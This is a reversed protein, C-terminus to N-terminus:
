AQYTAPPPVDEPLREGRRRWLEAITFVVLIFVVAGAAIGVSQGTTLRGGNHSEQVEDSSGEKQSSSPSDRYENPGNLVYRNAEKPDDAFLCHFDKPVHSDDKARSALDAREQGSLDELDLSVALYIVNPSIYGPLNGTPEGVKPAHYFPNMDVKSDNGPAAFLLLERIRIKGLPAKERTACGNVPGRGRWVNTDGIEERVRQGFYYYQSSGPHPHGSFRLKFTLSGSSCPRANEGVETSIMDADMVLSMRGESRVFGRLTAGQILVSCQTATYDFPKFQLVRTPPEGTLPKSEVLNSLKAGDDAVVLTITVALAIALVPPITCWCVVM